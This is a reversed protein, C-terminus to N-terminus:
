KRGVWARVTQLEEQNEAAQARVSSLLPSPPASGVSQVLPLTGCVDVRGGVASDPVRCILRFSLTAATVVSLFDLKRQRTQGRKIPWM